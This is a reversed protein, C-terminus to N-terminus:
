MLRLCIFNRMGVATLFIIEPMELLNTYKFKLENTNGLLMHRQIKWPFLVVIHNAKIISERGGGGKYQLM